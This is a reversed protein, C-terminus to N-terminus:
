KWFKIAKFDDYSYFQDPYIPNRRQGSTVPTIIGGYICVLFSAMTLTRLGRPEQIALISEALTRDCPDKDGNDVIRTFPCPRQWTGIIVPECKFGTVRGWTDDKSNKPTKKYTVMETPPPSGEVPCCVGFHTINCKERGCVPEAVCELEHVLPHIGEYIGHCKPLNLKRKHSGNTCVLYAGRVLYECLSM